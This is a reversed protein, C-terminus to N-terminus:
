LLANLDLQLIQSFSSKTTLGGDGKRYRLWQNTRYDYVFAEQIGYLNGDIMRIIKETDSRVGRTQCIEIVVPTSDTANSYLTVDPTPSSCEGVTMEPLPEYAIVGAEFLSYLRATLRAIIRQHIVPANAGDDMVLFDRSIPTRYDM